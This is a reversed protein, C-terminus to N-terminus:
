PQLAAFLERIEEDVSSGEPLTEAVEQRLIARLRQRLRHVAVKAANETLGLDRAVEQYSPPAQGSVFSELRQFTAGRGRALNEAQLRQMCRDVVELAWTRLFQREPTEQHGPEVEYRQQADEFDLSLTTNGGGRKLTQARDKDNALFNQLSTLLFSRFKGRQPDADGVVGKELLRTFFAQTLDSAEEAAPGRSRVYAYLPYWYATCLENL